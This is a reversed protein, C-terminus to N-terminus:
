PQEHEGNRLTIAFRSLAILIAFIFVAFKSATLDRTRLPYSPLCRVIWSAADKHTDYGPWHGPPERPFISVAIERIFFQREQPTCDPTAEPESISLLRTPYRNVEHLVSGGYVM